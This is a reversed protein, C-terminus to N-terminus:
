SVKALLDNLMRVFTTYADKDKPEINDLIFDIILLVDHIIEYVDLKEKTKEDKKIVEYGLFGALENLVNIASNKDLPIGVNKLRDEIIYRIGYKTNKM